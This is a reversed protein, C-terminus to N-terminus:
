HCGGGAERWIARRRRRKGAVHQLSLCECRRQRQPLAASSTLGAVAAAVLAVVVVVAAAWTLTNSGAAVSWPVVSVGTTAVGQVMRPSEVVVGGRGAKM